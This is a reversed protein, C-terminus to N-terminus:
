IFMLPIQNHKKDENSFCGNEILQTKEFHVIKLAIRWVCTDITIKITSYYIQYWILSSRNYKANPSLDLIQVNKLTRQKNIHCPDNVKIYTKGDKRQRLMWGFCPTTVFLFPFTDKFGSAPLINTLPWGILASVTSCWLSLHTHFFLVTKPHKNRISHHSQSFFYFEYCHLSFFNIKIYRKPRIDNSLITM